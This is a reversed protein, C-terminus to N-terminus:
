KKNVIRQGRSKEGKNKERHTSRMRERNKERLFEGIDQLFATKNSRPRARATAM